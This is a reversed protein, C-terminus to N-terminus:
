LDDLANDAAWRVQPNPDERAVRSLITHIHERVRIDTTSRAIQGLFKVIEKRIADPTQTDLVKTTLGRIASETGLAGLAQVVARQADQHEHDLAKVLAEIIAPSISKGKRAELAIREATQKVVKWDFSRTPDRKDRTRLGEITEKDTYPLPESYEALNTIGWLAKRAARRAAIPATDDAELKMLLGQARADRIKDLAIAVTELLEDDERTSLLHELLTLLPEVATPDASAGLGDIFRKKYKYFDMGDVLTPVVQHHRVDVLVSAISSAAEQPCHEELSTCLREVWVPILQQLAYTVGWARNMMAQSKYKHELVRVMIDYIKSEVESRGLDRAQLVLRVVIPVYFPSSINELLWITKSQWDHSTLIQRCMVFDAFSDHLFSPRSRDHIVGEAFLEQCITQKISRQDVLEKLAIEELTIEKLIEELAEMALRYTQTELMRNAMQYAIDAKAQGVEDKEMGGFRYGVFAQPRVREVRRRWYEERVWTDTPNSIYPLPETKSSELLLYLIFPNQCMEVLKPHLDEVRVHYEGRAKELIDMVQKDSLQKLVMEEAMPTGAEKLREYESPRSSCILVANSALENLQSILKTADTHPLIVDLADIFLVLPKQVLKALDQLRAGWDSPLCDFFQSLKEGDNYFLDQNLWIPFHRANELCWEVLHLLLTSKGVGAEGIVIWFDPQSAPLDDLKKRIDEDAKREPYPIALKREHFDELVRNTSDEMERLKALLTTANRTKLEPWSKYVKEIPHVYSTVPGEKEESYQIGVVIKRRYDYVPAGSMGAVSSGDPMSTEVFNYVEGVEAFFQGPRLTGTMRYGESGQRYGYSRVETDMEAPGLLTYDVPQAQKDTVELVVVDEDPNSLGPCYRAKLLKGKYEVDIESSPTGGKDAIIHFCTLCYGDPLVWFGTGKQLRGSIKVVCQEIYTEFDMM